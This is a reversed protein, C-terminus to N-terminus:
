PPQLGGTPYSVALAFGGPDPPEEQDPPRYNVSMVLNAKNDRDRIRVWLSKVQKHSNKLSLEECQISKKIYLAVSGDRKEWRDRRFQRYGNIAVSWDHSEDWWIETLAILDYSALLVSAELEEQKNGMSCANTCLCKM